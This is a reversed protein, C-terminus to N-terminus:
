KILQKVKHRIHMATYPDIEELRNSAFM